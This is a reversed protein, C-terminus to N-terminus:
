LIGWLPPLPPGTESPVGILTVEIDWRCVCPVFLSTVLTHCSFSGQYAPFGNSLHKPDCLSRHFGSPSFQEFLPNNEVHPM